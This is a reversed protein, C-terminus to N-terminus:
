ISECWLAGELFELIDVKDHFEHVRIQTLDDLHVEVM